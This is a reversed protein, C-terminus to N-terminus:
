MGPGAFEVWIVGGIEQASYLYEAKVNALIPVSSNNSAYKIGYSSGNNYVGFPETLFIFSPQTVNFQIIHPVQSANTLVKVDSIVNPSTNNTWIDITLFETALSSIKVPFSVTYTTEESAVIPISYYVEFHLIVIQGWEDGAVITYTGAPFGSLCVGSGDTAYNCYGIIATSASMYLANDYNPPNTFSVNAYTSTPQFLYLSYNTNFCSHFPMYGVELPNIASSVNTNDYFGHFVLINAPSFCAIGLSHPNSTNTFANLKWNSTWSVNNVEPLENFLSVAVKIAQGPRILTSNMSLTLSLGLTSNTASANNPPSYLDVYQTMTQTSTTPVFHTATTTVTFTQISSSTSSSKLSQTGISGVM